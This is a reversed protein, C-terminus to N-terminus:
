AVRRYVRAVLGDGAFPGFPARAIIADLGLSRGANDLLFFGQV